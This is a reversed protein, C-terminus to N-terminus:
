SFQLLPVRLLLACSAGCACRLVFFVCVFCAFFHPLVCFVCVRLRARLCVGCPFLHLLFVSSFILTELDWISTRDAVDANISSSSVGLSRSTSKTIALPLLLITFEM